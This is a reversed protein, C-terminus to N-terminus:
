KFKKILKKLRLSYLLDALAGRISPYKNIRKIINWLYKISFSNLIGIRNITLLYFDDELDEVQNFFNFIQYYSIYKELLLVRENIDGTIENSIQLAVNEEHFRRQTLVKNSTYFGNKICALACLTWDHTPITIQSKLIELVSEKAFRGNLILAMGPYNMKKKFENQGYKVLTKTYKQTNKLLTTNKENIIDTDTHLALMESNDNFLHTAFEIKNKMWVDDQDCLFIIDGSSKLIGNLFNLKYGKNHSNEFLVWNHTNNDAIFNNIIDITTDTSGDDFILVEDPIQTQNLISKLQDYIFKEGNYTAMVISTKLSM